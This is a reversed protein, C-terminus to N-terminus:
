CGGRTVKVVSKSSIRTGDDLQAIAHLVTSNALKVRTKIDKAETDPSLVFSTLLRNRKLDYIWIQKVQRSKDALQVNKIGVPVVGGNEALNPVDLELKNESLNGADTERHNSEPSGILLVGGSCIFLLGVLVIKLKM